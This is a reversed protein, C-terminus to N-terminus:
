EGGTVTLLFCLLSKRFRDFPHNNFLTPRVAERRRSWRVRVYWLFPLYSYPLPTTKRGFIGRVIGHMRPTPTM